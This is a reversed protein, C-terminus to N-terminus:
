TKVTMAQEREGVCGNRIIEERHELRIRKGRSNGKREEESQISRKM